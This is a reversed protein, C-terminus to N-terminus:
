AKFWGACPSNCNKMVSATPGDPSEAPALRLRCCSVDCHKNSTTAAQNMAFKQPQGTSVQELDCPNTQTYGAQMAKQCHETIAATFHSRGFLPRRRLPLHCGAFSREVIAAPMARLCIQRDGLFLSKSSYLLKM